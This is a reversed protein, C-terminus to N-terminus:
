GCVMAVEWMVCGPAAPGPLRGLIPISHCLSHFGAIVPHLDHLSIGTLAVHATSNCRPHLHSLLDVHDPSYKDGRMQWITLWTEECVVSLRSIQKGMKKHKMNLQIYYLRTENHDPPFHAM